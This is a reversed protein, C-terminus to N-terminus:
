EKYKCQDNSCALNSGKTKKELLLHGCHPCKKDVPKYWFAKSCTPYNSCGYFIKGSRGRKAVIDSGCDPCPVNISQVIAKTNKCEPYGSCAM